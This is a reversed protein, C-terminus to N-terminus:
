VANGTDYRREADTRKIYFPELFEIDDFDGQRIRPLALSVVKIARPWYQDDGVIKLKGKNVKDLLQSGPGIVMTGDKVSEVLESPTTLMYDGIRKGDGYCAAYVEGRYANIVVVLPSVTHSPEVGISDLTNVAVVPIKNVLSIGKALSMGVRLSTFMGPGNSIAIAAIDQGESSDIMRKAEDFIMADRHGEFERHKMFEHLVNEDDNLCMSFM